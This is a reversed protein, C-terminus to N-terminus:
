LRGSKKEKKEMMVASFWMEHIGITATNRLTRTYLRQLLLM